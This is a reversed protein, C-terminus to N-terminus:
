GGPAGLAEILHRLEEELEAEGEVTEAIEARLAERFSRRLRHAAVKVAGESLGLREGILRYSETTGGAVLSGRLAEFLPARERETWARELQAFARALVALAWDREFAHEPTRPDAPELALEEDAREFDLSLLARGGGRKLARERDWENALHHKLAGLLWARFRGRSPDAGRVANKELLLTFFGQTLDRAAERDHGRRRVYAYLPRWYGECLEELAKRSRPQDGQGAALVVSWRTTLFPAGAPRAGSQSGNSSM